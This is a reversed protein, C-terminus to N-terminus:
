ASVTFVQFAAYSSPEIITKKTPTPRRPIASQRDGYGCTHSNFVHYEHANKKQPNINWL